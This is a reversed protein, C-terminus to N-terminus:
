KPGGSRSPRDFGRGIARLTEVVEPMAAFEEIAYRAKRRWNPSEEGATSPVNQPETESWLDELNM